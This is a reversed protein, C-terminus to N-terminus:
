RSTMAVKAFTGDPILDSSQQPEIDGFDYM